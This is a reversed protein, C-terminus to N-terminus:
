QFLCLSLIINLKDIFNKLMSVVFKTLVMTDDIVICCVATQNDISVM